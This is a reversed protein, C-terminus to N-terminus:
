EFEIGLFTLVEGLGLSHICYKWMKPHTQRLRQFRNEGEDFHVGFMCFVCGTRTVGTDYIESYPLGERRIYEWVDEEKWFAIPWAISNRKNQFFCGGNRCYQTIRGRSEEAMMGTMAARGTEKAYRDLPSKKMVDCCKDSILFPADIMFQWKYSIKGKDGGPWGHLRYYKQQPDKTNRYRSIACAQEKSIVPYGYREIVQRFSMAPKRWDVGEFTKVFERIEPYELGTDVFVARIEPDVERALHLLVTSDKGGSFSVYVKGDHKRHWESIRDKTIRVKVDLPLSQRERLLWLMDEM